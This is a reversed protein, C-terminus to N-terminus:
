LILEVIEEAVSYVESLGSSHGMEWAKSFLKERKPNDSIGLEDFLHQKFMEHLERSRKAYERRAAHYGDDDVCKESVCGNLSVPIECNAVGPGQTYVLEGMKYYYKTTFDEKRPYPMTNKYKEFDM